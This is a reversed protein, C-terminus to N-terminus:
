RLPIGEIHWRLDPLRDGIKEIQRAPREPMEHRRVREAVGIGAVHEVQIRAESPTLREV